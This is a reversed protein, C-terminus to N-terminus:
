DRRSGILRVKVIGEIESGMVKEEFSELGIGSLSEEGVIKWRWQWGIGVLTERRDVSGSLKL